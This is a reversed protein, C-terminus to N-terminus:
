SHGAAQLNIAHLAHLRHASQFSNFRARNRRLIAVGVLRTSVTMTRSCEWANRDQAATAAKKTAIGADAM